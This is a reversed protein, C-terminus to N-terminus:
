TKRKPFTIRSFVDDKTWVLHRLAGAIHLSAAALLVWKMLYHIDLIAEGTDSRAFRLDVPIVLVNNILASASVYGSILYIIIILYLMAHVM